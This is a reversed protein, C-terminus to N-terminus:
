LGGWCGIRSCEVWTRGKNHSVSNQVWMSCAFSHEMCKLGKWTLSSYLHVSHYCTNGVHLKNMQKHNCNHVWKLWIFYM